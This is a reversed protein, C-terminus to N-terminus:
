AWYAEPQGTRALWEDWCNVVPVGKEFAYRLCDHTGGLKGNHLALGMDSRNVMWRNRRKMAAPVPIIDDGEMTTIVHVEDAVDLLVRYLARTDGPWKREQGKFPVAAIFPIGLDACAHAAALDWGVAMGTIVSDPRERVLWDAVVGKLLRHTSGGYSGDPTRHGTVFIRM